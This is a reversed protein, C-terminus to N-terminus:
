SALQRYVAILQLAQTEWSFHKAAFDSCATRFGDREAALRERLDRAAQVMEERRVPFEVSRGIRERAALASLDGIYHTLIVPLGCRLYEAFKVPSAVLNTLINERLLLGIDAAMLYSAVQDHSAAHSSVRDTPVGAQQLQRELAAAERSVILMHADHMDEAIAAFALAVQDPRQWHSMGGCYCIVFRGELGLARRRDSRMHPDFYFRQTDACCGIVTGPIDERLGATQRLHDALKHSVTNVADAGDLARRLTREAHRRLWWSKLSSGKVEDSLVGRMDLLVRIRPDRRKLLVAASACSQGRCHVIVPQDGTYACRRIAQRLRAAWLTNQLPFPAPPRFAFHVQADPLTARIAHQRQRTNPNRRHRMGTLVLLARQARPAQQGVFRLPMVVQSDLVHSFVGEGAFSILRLGDGTDRM